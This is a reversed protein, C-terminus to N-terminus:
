VEVFPGDGAAYGAHQPGYRPPMYHYQVVSDLFPDGGLADQHVFFALDGTSDTAVLAYGKEKGLATLSALSAGYYATGNWRYDPDEKMVWRKAPGHNANYQIVVVRPQWRRIASWIWYDNGALVISLLDFEFPVDNAALVEEINASTV